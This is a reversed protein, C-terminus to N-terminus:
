TRPGRREGGRGPRERAATKRAYSVLATRLDAVTEATELADILTEAPAKVPPPLTHTAVAAELSALADEPLTLPAGTTPDLVIVVGPLPDGRDDFQGPQRVTLAVARGLAAELQTSLTRPDIEKNIPVRVM